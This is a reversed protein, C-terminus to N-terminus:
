GRGGHGRIRRGRGRRGPRQHRDPPGHRDRRTGSRRGDARSRRLLASSRPRDHAGRAHAAQRRAGVGRLPGPVGPGHRGSGRGGRGHQDVHLRRRSVPRPGPRGGADGREREVGWRRLAPGSRCRGGSVSSSMADGGTIASLAEHAVRGRRIAATLVVMRSGEGVRIACRGRTPAVVVGDWHTQRGLRGRIGSSASQTAPPLLLQVM